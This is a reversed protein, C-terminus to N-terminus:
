TKTSLYSDISKNVESLWLSQDAVCMKILKNRHADDSEKKSEDNNDIENIKYEVLWSM